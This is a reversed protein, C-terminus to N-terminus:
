PDDRSWRNRLKSEVESGSMKNIENDVETRKRLAEANRRREEEEANARGRYRGALAALTISVVFALAVKMWRPMINWLPILIPSFFYFAAGIGLGGVVVYVWVPIHDVVWDWLM